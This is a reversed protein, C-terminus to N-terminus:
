IIKLLWCDSKKLTKSYGTDGAGRWQPASLSFHQVGKVLESELCRSNCKLSFHFKGTYDSLLSTSLVSFKEFSIEYSYHSPLFFRSSYEKWCEKLYESIRQFYLVRKRYWENRPLCTCSNEHDAIVSLTNLMFSSSRSKGRVPCSLPLSPLLKLLFTWGTRGWSEEDNGMRLVINEVLSFHYHTVESENNIVLLLSLFLFM